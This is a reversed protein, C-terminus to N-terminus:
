SASDAPAVSSSFAQSGIRQTPRIFVQLACASSIRITSSILLQSEVQEEGFCFLDLSHIFCLIHLCGRSKRKGLGVDVMHQPHAAIGIALSLANDCGKFYLFGNGLNRGIQLGEIDAAVPDAADSCPIGLITDM